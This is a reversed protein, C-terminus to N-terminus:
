GRLKYLEQAIELMPKVSDILGSELYDCGNEVNTKKVCNNNHRDNIKIDVNNSKYYLTESRFTPNLFTSSFITGDEFITKKIFKLFTPYTPFFDSIFQTMEDKDKYCFSVFPESYDIDTNYNKKFDAINFEGNLVADIFFQTIIIETHLYLEPFTEKLMLMNSKWLNEQKETHFRYKLDYSTCLLTIELLNLQKLYALFPILYLDMEYILSTTIYLKKLKNNKYKNACIDFLKYFKDRVVVDELQNDFFEGGIFGIESYANINESNLFQLINNLSQLKNTNPENKNFCFKCNNRCDKWLEFQVFKNIM